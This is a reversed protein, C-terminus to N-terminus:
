GASYKNVRFERRHVHAGRSSGPWRGCAPSSSSRRFIFLPRVLEVPLSLVAVGVPLQVWRFIFVVLKEIMNSQPLAFSLVFVGFYSFMFKIQSAVMQGVIEGQAITQGQEAMSLMSLIHANEAADLVGTILLAATAINVITAVNGQFPQGEAWRKLVLALSVFIVIFIFDLGLDARLFPARAILM